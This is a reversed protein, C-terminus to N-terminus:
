PSTGSVTADFYRLAGEHLPIALVTSRTPDIQRAVANARRLEPLHDYVAAVVDYVRDADTNANVILVNDVAFAIGDEETDYVDAPVNVISYYPNETVIAEAVASEIRLFRLDQTAGAQLVAAAPYGALAFAADVNGDSLQSFGDSYSLFSVVVDDITMGHAALLMQTLFFTTGGAPGVAIRRGRLDTFSELGTGTSTILHLVSPHLAGAALIEFRGPYPARGEYGFFALDANTIGLELDGGAVLRPNEIAGRTVIPVMAIGPAHQTVLNAIGQGLPYYAGGLAATGLRYEEFDPRGCAGLTAILLVFLFRLVVLPNLICRFRHTVPLM